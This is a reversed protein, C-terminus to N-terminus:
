KDVVQHDFIRVQSNIDGPVSLARLERSLDDVMLAWGTWGEADPTIETVRVRINIGCPALITIIDGLKPHSASQIRVASKVSDASPPLDRAGSRRITRM